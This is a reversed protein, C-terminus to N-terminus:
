YKRTTSYMATDWYWNSNSVLTFVNIGNKFSSVKKLWFEVVFTVSIEM